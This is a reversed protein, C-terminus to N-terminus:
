PAGGGASGGREARKGERSRDRNKLGELVREAVELVRVGQEGDALLTERGRVAEVFAGLEARLPEEAPLEVEIPRVLDAMGLGGFRHPDLRLAALTERLDERARVARVTGELLDLSFYAEKQFFRIKRMRELSVRSAVLNAVCGGSFRLRANVIDASDTVLAAGSAEVDVVSDGTALLILDLDHVMLDSVVSVDIGRPGIPSLRHSEIFLPGQLYPLLGRFAPNFREVHGVALVAGGSAAADVLERGERPSVALPKEVLVHVGSRLLPLAVRHHDSTPVCVSLADAKGALEEPSACTTTELQRAVGEAVAADRDHVGVLDLGPDEAALQRYVRAHQRGLHGVGVVGLRM